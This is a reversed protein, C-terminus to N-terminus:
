WGSLSSVSQYSFRNPAPLLRMRRMPMTASARRRSMSNQRKRSVPASGFPASIFAYAGERAMPGLPVRPPSTGNVDAPKAGTFGLTLLPRGGRPSFRESQAFALVPVAGCPRYPYSNAVPEARHQTRAHGACDAERTDIM